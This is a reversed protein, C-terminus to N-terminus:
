IQLESGGSKEFFFFNSVGAASGYARACRTPAEETSSGSPGNVGGLHTLVYGLTRDADTAIDDAKARAGIDGM